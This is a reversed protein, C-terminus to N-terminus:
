RSAPQPIGSGNKVTLDGSSNINTTETPGNSISLSQSVLSGSKV